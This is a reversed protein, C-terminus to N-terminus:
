RVSAKEPDVCLGCLLEVNRRTGNSEPTSTTRVHLGNSKEHITTQAHPDDDLPTSVLTVGAFNNFPPNTAVGCGYIPTGRPFNGEIPRDLLLRQRTALPKAQVVGYVEDGIRLVLGLPNQSKNVMRVKVMNKSGDCTDLTAIKTDVHAAPTLAAQVRARITEYFMRQFLRGLNDWDTNGVFTSFYHLDLYVELGSATKGKNFPYFEDDGTQTKEVVTEIVANRSLLYEAIITALNM